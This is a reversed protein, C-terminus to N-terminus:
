FSRSAHRKWTGAPAPVALEVSLATGSNVDADILTQVANLLTRSSGDLKFLQMENPDIGAFLNKFETKIAKKLDGVREAEASPVRM